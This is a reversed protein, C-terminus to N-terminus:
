CALLHCAVTKEGMVIHHTHPALKVELTKALFGETDYAFQLTNGLGPIAYPVPPPDCESKGQTAATQIRHARLSTLTYTALLPLLLLIAAALPVRADCCWWPPPPQPSGPLPPSPM